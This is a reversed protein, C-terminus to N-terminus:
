AVYKVAKEILAPIKDDIEVDTLGVAKLKNFVLQKVKDNAEKMKEGNFTASAKAPTVYDQKVKAAANVVIQLLKDDLETKTAKVKARISEGIKMSGVVLWVAGGLVYLFGLAMFLKEAVDAM